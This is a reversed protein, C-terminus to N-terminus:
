ALCPFSFYHGQYIFVFWFWTETYWHCGRDLLERARTPTVMGLRHASAQSGDYCWGREKEMHQEQSTLKWITSITVSDMAHQAALKGVDVFAQPHTPWDRDSQTTFGKMEPRLELRNKNNLSTLQIVASNLSTEAAETPDPNHQHKTQQLLLM